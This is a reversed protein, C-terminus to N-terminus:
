ESEAVATAVLQQLQEWGFSPMPRGNVFFEPTARVNLARGDEVDERIAGFIEPNRMDADLREHDLPLSKLIARARDPQAVHHATWRDQTSFLLELAPWFRGQRHAAELMMVIQDSGEHLPAYRLMANVKGPYRDILQQVLGYFVACTECAPDFFEVITVRADEAGLTPSHPRVFTSAQGDALSGLQESRQQKLQSAGFWFGLILILCAIIFLNRKM